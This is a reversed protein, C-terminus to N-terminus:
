SLVLFLALSCSSARARRPASARAVPRAGSLRFTQHPAWLAGCPGARRVPSLTQERHSARGRLLGLLLALLPRHNDRRAISLWPAGQRRLSLFLFCARPLRPPRLLSRAQSSSHFQVSAHRPCQQQCQGHCAVAISPWIRRALHGFSIAWRRRWRLARRKDEASPRGRQPTVSSPASGPWRRDVHGSRSGERASARLGLGMLSAAWGAIRSCSQPTRPALNAAYPM